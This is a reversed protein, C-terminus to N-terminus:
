VAMVVMGEEGVKAVTEVMAAQVVMVLTKTNPVMKIVMAAMVAKVVPVAMGETAAM